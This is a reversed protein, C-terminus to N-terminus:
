GNSRVYFKAVLKWLLSLDVIGPHYLIIEFEVVRVVFLSPTLKM